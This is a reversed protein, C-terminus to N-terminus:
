LDEDSYSNGTGSLDVSTGRKTTSKNMKELQRDYEKGTPFNKGDIISWANKDIHFLDTYLKRLKEKEESDLGKSVSNWLGRIQKQVDQGLAYLADYENGYSAIQSAFPLRTNMVITRLGQNWDGHVNKAAQIEALTPKYSPTGVLLGNSIATVPANSIYSNVFSNFNRFQIVTGMSARAGFLKKFKSFAEEPNDIGLDRLEKMYAKYENEKTKLTDIIPGFTQSKMDNDKISTGKTLLVKAQKLKNRFDADEISLDEVFSAFNALKDEDVVHAGTGSDSVRWLKDPLVSETEAGETVNNSDLNVKPKATTGVKPVSGNFKKMGDIISQVNDGYSDDTPANSVLATVQEDTLNSVNPLGVLASLMRKYILRGEPNNVADYPNQNKWQLLRKAANMLATRFRIARPDSEGDGTAHSAAEMTRSIDLEHDKLDKQSAPKNMRARNYRRTQAQGILWQALAEDYTAVYSAAVELVREFDEVPINMEDGKQLILGCIRRAMNKRWQEFEAVSQRYNYELSSRRENRMANAVGLDYKAAENSLRDYPIGEKERQEILNRLSNQRYNEGYARGLEFGKGMPAVMEEFSSTKPAANKLFYLSNLDFAAM